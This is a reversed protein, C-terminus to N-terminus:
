WIVERTGLPIKLGHALVKVLGSFHYLISHRCETQACGRRNLYSRESFYIKYEEEYVKLSFEWLVHLMNNCTGWSYQARNGTVARSVKTPLNRKKQRVSPTDGVTRYTQKNECFSVRLLIFHSTCSKAEPEPQSESSPFAAATSHNLYSAMPPPSFFDLGGNQPLLM